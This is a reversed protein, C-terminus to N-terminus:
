HYRFFVFLIIASAVIVIVAGIRVIDARSTGSPPPSEFSVPAIERTPTRTDRAAKSELSATAAPAGPTASPLPEAAPSSEAPPAASPAAAPREASPITALTTDPDTRPEPLPFARHGVEDDSTAIPYGPGEFRAVVVTINDPGGAANALAILRACITSPDAEDRVTRAIEQDRVVGSLGDSCLVLTDGRRVDQHTVDVKIVAEPGLAQLIINRRESVEAEEASIEGAEILRQMLSQDKTLQRAEGGRVLYARSDGVQAIYLTDGVVGAITATTGMGRYEPHETAYRHITDNAVTTADHVARGFTAADTSADTASVETWRTRLEHLVTEVAKSSAIEGAAAGGMGDAVMFLMGRPAPLFVRTSGDVFSLPAARGLDAVVFADENHERARGVDSAGYVRVTLDAM